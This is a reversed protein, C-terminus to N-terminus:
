LFCAYKKGYMFIDILTFLLHLYLSNKKRTRGKVTMCGEAKLSLAKFYIHTTSM